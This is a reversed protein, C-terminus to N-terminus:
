LCPGGSPQQESLASPRALSASQAREDTVVALHREIGFARRRGPGGASVWQAPLWDLVGPGYFSFAYRLRTSDNSASTPSSPEARWYGCSSEPSIRLASPHSGYRHPLGELECAVRVLTSYPEVRTGAERFVSSLRASCSTTSPEPHPFCRSRDRLPM